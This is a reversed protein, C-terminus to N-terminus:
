RQQAKVLADLFLSEVRAASGRDFSKKMSVWVDHPSTLLCANLRFWEKMKRKIYNRRVSNGIRRNVSIAFRSAPCDNRLFYM